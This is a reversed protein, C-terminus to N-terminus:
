NLFVYARHTKSAEKSIDYSMVGDKGLAGLEFEGSAQGSLWLASSHGM